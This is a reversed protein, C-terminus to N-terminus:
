FKPFTGKALLGAEKLLKQFKSSKLKNTNMPEGFSCYYQFIRLLQDSYKELIEDIYNVEEMIKERQSENGM